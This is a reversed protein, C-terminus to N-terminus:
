AQQSQKLEALKQEMQELLGEMGSRKVLSRYTQRYSSVLSVNEVIVDYVYWNGDRLRLRYSVPINTDQTVIVSDVQARKDNIQEDTFRVQENNYDYADMRDVYTNELLQAFLEQFREQQEKTADRWNTSLVSQSMARFDFVKYVEERVQERREAPSLNEKKLVDIIVDVVSELRETPSPQALAPLAFALIMVLALFPKFLPNLAIKM